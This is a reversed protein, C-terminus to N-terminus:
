MLPGASCSYEAAKIRQEEIWVMYDHWKKIRKLIRKIM